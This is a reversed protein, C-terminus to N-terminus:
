PLDPDMEVSYDIGGLMAMEQVMSTSLSVIRAIEVKEEFLELRNTESKTLDLIDNIIALLHSGSDAIIGAYEAYKEALPGYTKNRMMQSFGIIANLPTRLEHSMNALFQTKARNAAQADNMSSILREQNQHLDNFARSARLMYRVRHNLIVWQI